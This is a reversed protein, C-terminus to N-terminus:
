NYIKNCLLLSGLLSLLLIRGAVVWREDWERASEYVTEKNEGAPYVVSCVADIMLRRKQRGQQTLLFFNFLIDSLM